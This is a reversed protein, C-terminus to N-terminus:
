WADKGCLMKAAFMKERNRAACFFHSRATNAQGQNVPKHLFHGLVKKQSVWEPSPKELSLFFVTLCISFDPFGVARGCFFARVFVRSGRKLRSVSV